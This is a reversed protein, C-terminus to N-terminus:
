VIIDMKIQWERGMQALMEWCNDNRILSKNKISKWMCNPCISKQKEKWKKKM